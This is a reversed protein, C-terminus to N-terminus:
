VHARGIKFSKLGSSLKEIGIGAQELGPGLKAIQELQEVPSKQGSIKSLLGTALNTVGAIANGAAFAAMGGAVALLGAGVQALASGDLKSLREISDTVERIINVIGDSIGQIVKFVADGVKEIIQPIAKIGEIFVNQIVDAIKILVPTFAEIAPAAMELAKGIGMAALTFAGMGVLTAPNFFYSFGKAVGRLLGQLGSGLGKGLKAFATGLAGIGSSLTDLFGGGSDKDESRKVAKADHHSTNKAIEKLLDNQEETRKESEQKDEKSSIVKRGDDISKKAVSRFLM